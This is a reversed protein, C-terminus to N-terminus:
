KEMLSKPLEVIKGCKWCGGPLDENKHGIDGVFPTAESQVKGSQSREIMVGTELIFQSLKSMGVKTLVVVPTWAVM